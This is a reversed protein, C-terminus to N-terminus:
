GGTLQLRASVCNVDGVCLTDDMCGGGPLPMDAVLPEPGEVEQM